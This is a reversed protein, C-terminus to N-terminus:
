YLKYNLLDLDEQTHTHKIKMHREMNFKRKTAYDCHACYHLTESCNSDQENNQIQLVIEKEDEPEIVMEDESELEKENEPEIENEHELEIVDDIENFKRKKVPKDDLKINEHVKM